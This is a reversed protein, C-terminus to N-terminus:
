AQFTVTVKLFVNWNNSATFLTEYFSPAMSKSAEFDPVRSGIEDILQSIHNRATKIKVVSHFFKSNRDGLHMWSERNRKKKKQSGRTKNMHWGFALSM